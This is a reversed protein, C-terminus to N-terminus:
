EKGLTKLVELITQEDQVSIEPANVRRAKEPLACLYGPVLEGTERRVFLLVKNGLRPHRGYLRPGYRYIAIPSSPEGEKGLSPVNFCIEAHPSSKKLSVKVSEIACEVAAAQTHFLEEEM